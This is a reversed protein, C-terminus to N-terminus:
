WRLFRRHARRCSCGRNGTERPLVAYELKTYLLDRGRRTEEIHQLIVSVDPAVIAGPGLQVVAGAGLLDGGVGACEEGELLINLGTLRDFLLLKGDLPHTRWTIDRLPAPLYPAFDFPALTSM